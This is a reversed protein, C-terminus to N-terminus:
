IKRFHYIDDRKITLDMRPNGMKDRVEEIVKKYVNWYEIETAVENPVRISEVMFVVSNNLKADDQGVLYADHIEGSIRIGTQNYIEDTAINWIDGIITTTYYQPDLGLFSITYSETIM